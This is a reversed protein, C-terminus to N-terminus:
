RSSTHGSARRSRRARAGARPARSRRRHSRACRRSRAGRRSPATRGHAPPARRLPRRLPQHREGFPREVAHLLEGAVRKPPDAAQTEGGVRRARPAGGRARRGARHRSRRRTPRRAAAAARRARDVARDEMGAVPRDLGRAPHAAERRVRRRGPHVDALVIRDVTSSRRHPRRDDDRAVAEGRREQGLERATTRGVRPCTSTSRAARRAARRGAASRARRSRSSAAAAPRGARSRRAARRESAVSSVSTSSVVGHDLIASSSSTSAARRRCAARDRVAPGADPARRGIQHREDAADGAAVSM